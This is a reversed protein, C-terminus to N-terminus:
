GSNGDVSLTWTATPDCAANEGGSIHRVELVIWKSDDSGWNDSWSEDVVSPSGSGAKPNAGCNTGNKSGDYAFLQYEIGPPSTLTAKYSLSVPLDNSETVEIAIWASSAGTTSQHDHGTDGAVSPLMQATACADSAAFTCSGVSGSSSSSSAAESGGVGSAGTGSGGAAMSSTGGAGSGVSSSSSGPAVGGTGRPGTGMPVLDGSDGEACGGAGLAALIVVLAAM